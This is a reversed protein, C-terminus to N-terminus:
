RKEWPSVIAIVLLALALLWVLSLQWRGVLWCLIAMWMLTGIAFANLCGRM